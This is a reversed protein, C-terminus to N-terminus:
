HWVVNFRRWPWLLGFPVKENTQSPITWSLKHTVYIPTLASKLDGEHTHKEVMRWRRTKSVISATPPYPWTASHGNSQSHLNQLPHINCCGAQMRRGTYMRPGNSNTAYSNKPIPLLVYPGLFLYSFVPKAFPWWHSIRPLFLSTDVTPEEGTTTRKTSKVSSAKLITRTFKSFGLAGFGSRYYLLSQPNDLTRALASFASVLVNLLPSSDEPM